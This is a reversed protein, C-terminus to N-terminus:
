MVHPFSLCFRHEMRTFWQIYAANESNESYNKDFNIWSSFYHCGVCPMRIAVCTTMGIVCFFLGYINWMLWLNPWKRKNEARKRMKWQWYLIFILKKKSSETDEGIRTSFPANPQTRVHIQVNSIVLALDPWDSGLVILFGCCFPFFTRFNTIKKQKSMVPLRYLWRIIPLSVFMVAAAVFLPSLGTLCVLNTYCKKKKYMCIYNIHPWSRVWKPTPGIITLAFLINM